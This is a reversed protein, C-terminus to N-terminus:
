GRSHERTALMYADLVEDGTYHDRGLFHGRCDLAASRRLGSATAVAMIPDIGLERIAEAVGDMEVARREAHLVDTRICMDVFSSFRTADMPQCIGRLAETRVGAVSAAILAEVVLAEIGKTVVSRLM